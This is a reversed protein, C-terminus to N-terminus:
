YINVMELRLGQKRLEMDRARFDDYYWGYVQIEGFNGPRFVATYKVHGNVIYNNLIALRWGKAWL